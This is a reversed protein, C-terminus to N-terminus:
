QNVEAIGQGPWYDLQGDAGPAFVDSWLEELAPHEAAEAFAVADAVEAEIEQQIAAIAEVTCLGAERLRKEQRSIPDRARWQEEEEESRYKNRDSRSHGCYRFTECEVLTPGGGNRARNIAEGAAGRVVEVDMGDVTVAPIGYAQARTAVNPVPSGMDFPTSAAYQNNECVLVVPLEWVAALNVGEHFAGTGAAGDGFFCVTVQENGMMQQSLALGAAIPVSGAVIAIAPLMGLEFNGLHMSGGKGHCCGAAKGYLEAAVERLSLGRAIAHGHSRHTSTILDDKQLHSCVGVAVAEQGQYQHVTGPVRGAEFLEFIRDEFVRIRLMERYLHLQQNDSLEETM